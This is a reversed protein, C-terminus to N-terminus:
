SIFLSFFSPWTSVEGDEVKVRYTRKLEQFEEESQANKEARTLPKEVEETRDDESDSLAIGLLGLDVDEKEDM